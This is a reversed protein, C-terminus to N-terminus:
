YILDLKASWDGKRGEYAGMFVGELSDILDSASVSATDSGGGPPIDFNLKGEIDPFWGYLLVSHQWESSEGHGDAMIGASSVAAAAGFLSRLTKSSINM